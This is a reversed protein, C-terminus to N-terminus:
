KTSGTVRHLYTASYSCIHFHITSNRLFNCPRPMLNVLTLEIRTASGIIKRLIKSATARQMVDDYVITKKTTLKCSSRELGCPASSFWCLPQYSNASRYLHFIRCCNHVSARPDFPEIAQPFTLEVCYKRVNIASHNLKNIQKNIWKPLRLQNKLNILISLIATMLLSAHPGFRQVVISTVRRMLSIIFINWNLLDVSFSRCM